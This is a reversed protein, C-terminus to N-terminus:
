TLPHNCLGASFHARCSSSSLLFEHRGVMTPWVNPPAEGVSRSTLSLFTQGGPTFECLHYLTSVAGSPRSTMSGPSLVLGLDRAMVVMRLRRKSVGPALDFQLSMRPWSKCKRHAERHQLIRLMSTLRECYAMSLYRIINISYIKSTVTHGDHGFSVRSSCCIANVSVNTASTSRYSCYLSRKTPTAVGLAPPGCGRSTHSAAATRRSLQQAAFATLKTVWRYM